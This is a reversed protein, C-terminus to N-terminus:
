YHLFETMLDNFKQRTCAHVPMHSLDYIERPDHTVRYSSDDLNERTVPTNVLQGLECNPQLM